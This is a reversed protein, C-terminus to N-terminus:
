RRWGRGEIECWARCAGWRSIHAPVRRTKLVQPFSNQAVLHTSGYRRCRGFDHDDGIVEAVAWGARFIVRRRAALKDPRPNAGELHAYRQVVRARALAPAGDGDERLYRRALHAAGRACRAQKNARSGAHSAQVCKSVGTHATADCNGAITFNVSRTYPCSASHSTKGGSRLERGCDACTLVGSTLCPCPPRSRKAM